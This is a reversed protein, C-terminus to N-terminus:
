LKYSKRILVIAISARVGSQRIEHIFNYLFIARDLSKELIALLDIAPFENGSLNNNTLTFSKTNVMVM